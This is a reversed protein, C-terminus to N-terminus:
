TPRYFSAVFAISVVDGVAIYLPNQGLIVYEAGAQKALSIADELCTKRGGQTEIRVSDITPIRCSVIESGIHVLTSLNIPQGDALLEAGNREIVKIM